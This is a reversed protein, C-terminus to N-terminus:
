AESFSKQADTPDVPIPPINTITADTQSSGPPLKSPDFGNKSLSHGYAVGFAGTVISQALSIVNAGVSADAHHFLVAMGLASALGVLGCIWKAEM